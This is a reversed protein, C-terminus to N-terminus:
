IAWWLVFPESISSKATHAWNRSVFRKEPQMVDVCIAPQLWPLYYPQPSQTKPPVTKQSYALSFMSLNAMSFGKNSNNPLMQIICMWILLHKMSNNSTEPPFIHLSISLAGYLHPKVIRATTVNPSQLVFATEVMELASRVGDPCQKPYSSYTTLRHKDLYQSQLYNAIKKWISPEPIHDNVVLYRLFMIFDLSILTTCQTSACIVHIHVKQYNFCVRMNCHYHWPVVEGGEKESESEM